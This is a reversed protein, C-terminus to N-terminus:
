LSNPASSFVGLGFSSYSRFPIPFFLSALSRLTTSAPGSVSRRGFEELQHAGSFVNSITLALALIM